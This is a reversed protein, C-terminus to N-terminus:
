GWFYINLCAVLMALSRSFCITRRNLRKLHTRISLNKREIHNISYQKTRHIAKPLLSIYNKLKDTYVRKAESLILTNTVQRLTKNTRKGIALSIVEKSDRQLAYAIWIRNEKNGIYTCMEDLEYVKGKSIYPRRISTGITLIRKMVTTPSINLLRSISRIGSGEKVLNVIWKNTDPSWAKYKLKVQFRKCCNKCRYRQIGTKSKGDKSSSSSCIPCLFKSVGRSIWKLNTKNMKLSNLTTLILFTVWRTV